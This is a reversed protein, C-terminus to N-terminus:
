KVEYYVAIAGAGAHTGVTAGVNGFIIEKPNFTEKVREYLEMGFDKCNTHNIGMTQNSFDMESKQLEKIVWNIVKKRGRIKGTMILKGDRMTLVPKINLKQGVYAKVVSLRGGKRLNELTDVVFICRIKEIMESVRDIIADKERGRKAMKAAELVMLGQCLTIQRSDIVTVKDEMEGVEKATNASQYTGSMESSITFVIMHEYENEYKKYVELFEAPSVQSTTPLKESEELKKYFEDFTLDVGDKYSGDTFNITLPVVEIDWEKVLSPPIDAVSDTIIKVKGM